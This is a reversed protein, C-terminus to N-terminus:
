KGSARALADSSVGETAARHRRVMVFTMTVRWFRSDNTQSATLTAGGPRAALLEPWHCKSMRQPLCSPRPSRTSTATM